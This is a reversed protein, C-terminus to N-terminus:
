RNEQSLPAAEVETAYLMWDRGDIEVVYGPIKNYNLELARIIRGQKGHISRLNPANIKVILDDEFTM